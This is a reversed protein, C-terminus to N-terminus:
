IGISNWYFYFARTRRKKCRLSVRRCNKWGSNKYVMYPNSPIDDPKEVSKCYEIWEKPLTVILQIESDFNYFCLITHALITKKEVELFQKPLDSNMRKGFGGATIIVSKEIM